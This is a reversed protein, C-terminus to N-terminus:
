CASGIASILSCQTNHITCQAHASPRELIGPKSTAGCRVISITALLAGGIGLVYASCYLLCKMDCVLAFARPWAVHQTPKLPRRPAPQAYRRWGAHPGATPACHQLKAALLAAAIPPFQPVVDGTRLSPAPCLHLRSSPVCATSAHASCHPVSKPHAHFCILSM